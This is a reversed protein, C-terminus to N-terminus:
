QAQQKKVYELFKRARRNWPERRLVEEFEERAQEMRGMSLYTLALNFRIKVSSPNNKLAEIYLEVARDKMKADNYAIALNYLLEEDFPTVKRAAEYHSVAQMLMGKKYYALGLNYHADSKPHKESYQEKLKLAAELYRIAEDYQEEDLYATGLNIYGRTKLPSKKIVDSWLSKKSQWVTNRAYSAGALVIILVCTMILIVKNLWRIRVKGFLNFIIVAAAILVGASPLYARYEVMMEGIPLISSEVSLTIFFWFIGFALLRGSADGTLSRKLMYVGFAFLGLLMLFSIFVAPEFLSRYVFHNHDVSQGVPVFLLGLYKVIVNFQTYLYEMRSVGGPYKTASDITAGLSGQKKMDIYSLPIILMTLLVPLLTIVREKMGGRFFMLEYLVIAAPLTFVNEKTKMGLVAFLLALAYLGYRAKGRTLRSGIYAATSALYFMSALLVVRKIMYTVTETQLPHLVFLLGAFLAILHSHEKLRSGALLPTKFTLTVILYVLLANIIHVTLSFVHYGTVDLGGLRHSAWFTFYAVRRTRFFRRLDADLKLQETKSPDTFYGLDTILPNDKIFRVDDFLFPVDFTNSYALLALLVLATIHIYTNRALKDLM